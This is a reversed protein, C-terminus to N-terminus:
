PGGRGTKGTVEVRDVKTTPRKLTKTSCSEKTGWFGRTKCVTERLSAPEQLRQSTTSGRYDVGTRCFRARPRNRSTGVPVGEEGFEPEERSQDGAGPWEYM